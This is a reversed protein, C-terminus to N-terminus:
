PAAAAAYSPADIRKRNPPDPLVAVLDHGTSRTVILDAIEGRLAEPPAAVRVFTEDYGRAGHEVLVRALTGVRQALKEAMRRQGLERLQAAREKKVAAPVQPMRAAPAGPRASFPFVHLFTLDCEEVLALTERFMADTETPFGVILDAGLALGPRVGQLERCLRVADARGHRRRMRKLVMDSGAQLSLHLHPMLREEEAFAALLDPDVEACDISSLRLRPLSPAERLIRRVLAGLRPAGPLDAGWSTLDVGTLVIEKRGAEALRAAASAIEDAGRSRSPGRGYPIICFTCHHDCGNQVQLFARTHGASAAGGSPIVALGWSDPRTKRANPLIREIEPMAAFRAPDIESACGTVVIRLDPDERKRRRIARIAEREAQATVACSNVILLRQEGAAEAAALMDESEGINLRCGFTLTEVGASDRPDLNRPDLNRSDLNRSDPVERTEAM